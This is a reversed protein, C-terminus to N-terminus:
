AAKGQEIAVRIETPKPRWKGVMHFAEAVEKSALKKWTPQWM